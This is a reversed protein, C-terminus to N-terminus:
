GREVRHQFALVRESFLRQRLSASRGPYPTPIVTELLRTRAAPSVVVGRLTMWLGALWKLPLVMGIRQEALFTPM